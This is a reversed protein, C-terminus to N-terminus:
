RPGRVNNTAGISALYSGLWEDKPKASVVTPTTTLSAMTRPQSQAMMADYAALGAARNANPTFKEGQWSGALDPLDKAYKSENSFTEHNPKKHEDTWHRTKADSMAGSKFAGRFDYDNGSDWKPVNKARWKQFAKEDEEGLATDWRDGAVPKVGALAASTADAHPNAQARTLMALAADAKQNAATAKDNIHADASMGAKIAAPGNIALMGDPRQEVVNQGVQTSAINQASAPGIQQGAPAGAIAGNYQYSAPSLTALYQEMSQAPVPQINEKARVDSMMMAGGAVSATTQNITGVMAAEDAARKRQYGDQRNIIAERNQNSAGWADLGLRADAQRGQQDLAGWGRGEGMMGLQRNSADNARAQDQGRMGSAGSMYSDRARAMEDARMASTNASIDTMSRATNGAAQQQAMALAAPGRASAALSNQGSAAQDMQRKSLLEARSPANGMAADRLLGLSNGQEARSTNTDQNYNYRDREASNARDRAYQMGDYAADGDGGVQSGGGSPTYGTIDYEFKGAGGTEHTMQGGNHKRNWEAVETETM